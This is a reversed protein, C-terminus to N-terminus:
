RIRARLLLMVTGSATRVQLDDIYSLYHGVGHQDALTRLNVRMRDGDVHIWPPMPIIRVVHRALVMLGTSELRLVLFPFEPFEAQRDIAVNLRLIPLLSSGIRARVLFRDGDLPTLDLDRVPVSAPIAASALENLLRKSVPLTISAEAGALDSLGGASLRDFLQAFRENV